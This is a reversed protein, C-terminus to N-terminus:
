AHSNDGLLARLVARLHKAKRKWARSAVRATMRGSLLFQIQEKQRKILDDKESDTLIRPPLVSRVFYEPKDEM